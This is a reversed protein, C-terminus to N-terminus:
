GCAPGQSVGLDPFSALPVYAGNRAEFCRHTLGNTLLLYRAGLVSNYRVAQAMVRGDVSVGPAKCEALLLPTGGKDVVVVDARQPQGNVDVPYEQVIRGAQAKCHTALFAVLHRRVWEEPTLVLWSGRLEDWVEVQTGRRRARLKIPPFRLKPTPDM